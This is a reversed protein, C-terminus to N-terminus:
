SGGSVAQCDCRQSKQAKRPADRPAQVYVWAAAYGIKNCGYRICMYGRENGYGCTSGWNTHWSNKILWAEKQDDWGILTVAHNVAGSANENFVGGTYAAFADTARVSVASPGFECLAEKLERVSPSGGAIVYGWTRSRM